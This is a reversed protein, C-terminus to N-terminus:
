IRAFYGFTDNPTQGTPKDRRGSFVYSPSTHALGRACILLSRAQTALFGAHPAGNSDTDFQLSTAMWLLAAQLREYATHFDGEDSPKMYRHQHLSLALSAAAQQVKREQTRLDKLASRYMTNSMSRIDVGSATAQVAQAASLPAASAAPASSASSGQSSSVGKIPTEPAPVNRGDARPTEAYLHRELMSGTAEIQWEGEFTFATPALPKSLESHAATTVFGSRLEDRVREEDEQKFNKEHQGDDEADAERRLERARLRQLGDPDDLPVAEAAARVRTARPQRGQVRPGADHPGVVGVVARGEVAEGNGYGLM